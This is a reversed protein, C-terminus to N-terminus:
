RREKEDAIVIALMMGWLLGILIFFWVRIMTGSYGSETTPRQKM